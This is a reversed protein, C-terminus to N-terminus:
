PYTQPSHVLTKSRKKESGRRSRVPLLVPNPSLRTRSTAARV